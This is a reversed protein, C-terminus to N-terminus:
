RHPMNCNDISLFNENSQWVFCGGEKIKEIAKDINKAITSDPLSDDIVIHNFCRIKKNDKYSRMVLIYSLTSVDHFLWLKPIEVNGEYCEIIFPERNKQIEVLSNETIQKHKNKLSKM